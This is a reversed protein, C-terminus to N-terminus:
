MPLQLRKLLILAHVYIGCADYEGLRSLLHLFIASGNNIMMMTILLLNSMEAHCATYIYTHTDLDIKKRKRKRSWPALFAVIWCGAEAGM